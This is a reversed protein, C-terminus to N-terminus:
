PAAQLATRIREITATDGKETALDLVSRGEDNTATPDAGAALLLTVSAADGNHAASHLPTWGASQRADPNAGADLLIEVADARARSAASHLATGTMWGRGLADVEAGHALLIGAADPQGFFAAFHLATFGDGAYATAAGPDTELLLTLRDLDGFSAAEFVDLEDVRDFVAAVLVRDFRYRARMLASVGQADRSTAAAPDAELITRVAAVDGADIADFLEEQTSAM